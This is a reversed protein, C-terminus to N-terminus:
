IWKGVIGKMKGLLIPVPDISVALAELWSETYGDIQSVDCVSEYYEKRICQAHLHPFWGGNQESDALVGVSDGGICRDGVNKLSEPTLHGYMLYTNGLDFIMRSGWGNFVDIDIESFVVVCDKPVTVQTGAPMVIDVGVHIMKKMDRDFERLIQSRDELYGGYSRTPIIRTQYDTNFFPNPTGPLDFENLRLTTWIKSEFSTLFLRDM